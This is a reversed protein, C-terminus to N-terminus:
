VFHREMLSVLRFVLYEEIEIKMRINRVNLTIIIKKETLQIKAIIAFETKKIKKWNKL